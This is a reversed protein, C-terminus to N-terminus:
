YAMNEYMYSGRMTKSMITTIEKFADSNNVLMADRIGIVAQDPKFHGALAMLAVLTHLNYEVIEM